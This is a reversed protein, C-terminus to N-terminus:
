GKATVREWINELTETQKTTPGKMADLRERISVLFDHEWASLFRERKECDDILVYFEDRWDKGSM